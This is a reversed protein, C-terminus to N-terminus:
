GRTAGVAAVPAPEAAPQSAVPPDMMQMRRETDIADIPAPQAIGYGQAFNIGLAALLAHEDEGEVKKAASPIGMVRCMQALAALRAQGGRSVLAEGSLERDIKVMSVGPISLLRISDDTLTFNDIVVGSGLRQLLNALADVRKPERRCLAQDIEFALLGSPLQAKKLEHEVFEIFGADYVTTTALNLTFQTPTGHWVALRPQLWLVLQHLVRRDLLAGLKQAELEQLLAAPSPDGKHAWDPRVYVEYCRVRASTQLPVLRQAHLELQMAELESSRRAHEADFAAVVPHLGSKGPDTAIQAAGSKSAIAYGWERAARVVADPVDRGPLVRTNIRRADTLILMFGKFEGMRDAARLLVAARGGGVPLNVRAQSVKGKFANIAATVTERNEQDVTKASQWFAHGAADYLALGLAYDTPLAALTRQAFIQALAALRQRGQVEPADAPM